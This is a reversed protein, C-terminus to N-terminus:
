SSIVTRHEHERGANPIKYKIVYDVGFNDELAKHTM